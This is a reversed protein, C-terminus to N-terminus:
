FVAQPMLVDGGAPAGLFLALNALISETTDYFISWPDRALSIWKGLDNFKSSVGVGAVNVNSFGNTPDTGSCFTGNPATPTVGGGAATKIIGNTLNLAVFASATSNASAGLFYQTNTSLIIGSSIAAVGVAVLQLNGSTNTRLSWGGGVLSTAIIANTNVAFTPFSGIGVLSITTDNFTGQGAWSVRQSSASVFKVIPGLFQDIDYTPTANIASIVGDRLSVMKNGAIPVAAFRTPGGFFEHNPDFRPQTNNPWVLASRKPLLLM